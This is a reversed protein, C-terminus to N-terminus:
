TISDVNHQEAGASESTGIIVDAKSHALYKSCQVRVGNIRSPPLADILL